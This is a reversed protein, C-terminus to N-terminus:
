PGLASNKSEFRSRCFAPGLHKKIFENQESAEMNMSPNNGGHEPENQVTVANISIGHKQM